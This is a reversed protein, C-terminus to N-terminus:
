RDFKPRIMNQDQIRNDSNSMEPNPMAPMLRILKAAIQGSENPEGIIVLMDDVKLDTIKLTERLSKIATDSEVLVIKEVNDRGNIVLTQGDIKIIQGMTGNADIFNRDNFAQGFGDRPGAFNAHYNGSWKCAFDAKRGGVMVGAKFVLVLVLFIFIGFITGKFFKSQFIQGLNLNM